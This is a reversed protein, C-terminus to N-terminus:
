RRSSLSGARLAPCPCTYCSTWVGPGAFSLFGHQYLPAEVLSCPELSSDQLILIRLCPTSPGMHTMEAALLLFICWSHSSPSQLMRAQGISGGLPGSWAFRLQVTSHIRMHTPDPSQDHLSASRLLASDIIDPRNTAAVLYVGARGDIGDMETLLQNVV